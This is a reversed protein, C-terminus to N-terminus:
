KMVQLRLLSISSLFSTKLSNWLRTQIWSSLTIVKFWLSSCSFILELKTLILVKLSHFIFLVGMPHKLFVDSVHYWQTRVLETLDRNEKRQKQKKWHTHPPPCSAFIFSLHKTYFLLIPKLSLPKLSISFLPWYHSSGCHKLTVQQAHALHKIILQSYTGKKIRCLRLDNGGDGM